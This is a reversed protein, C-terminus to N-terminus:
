DCGQLGGSIGIFYEGQNTIRVIGRAYVCYDARLIPITIHTTLSMFVPEMQIESIFGRQEALGSNGSVDEVIGQVCM